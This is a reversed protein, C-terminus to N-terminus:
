QLVLAKQAQKEHTHTKMTYGVEAYLCKDIGLKTIVLAQMLLLPSVCIVLVALV